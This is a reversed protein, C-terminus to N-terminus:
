NGWELFNFCLKNNFIENWKLVYEKGWSSVIINNDDTLGTIMMSHGHSHNPDSSLKINSYLEPKTSYLNYELNSNQVLGVCIEATQGIALRNAIEEKLSKIGAESLPYANGNTDINNFKFYSTESMNKSKLWENIAFVNKFTDYALGIQNSDDGVKYNFTQKSVIKDNNKNTFCYLDTLLLEDNLIRKSDEVRYLDFGFIKKFVEEKGEYKVTLENIFTAYSCIGTVDMGRLLKNIKSKSMNPFYSKVINETERYLKLNNKPNTAINNVSHQNAGYQSYKSLINANDNIMDHYLDNLYNLRTEDIANLKHDTTKLINSLKNFSDLIYFADEKKSNKINNLLIDYQTEDFIFNNFYDANKGHNDIGYIVNNKLVDNFDKLLNTQSQIMMFKNKMKTDLKYNNELLADYYQKVGLIYTEKDYSGFYQSNKDFDLFKYFAEDDTLLEEIKRVDVLQATTGLITQVEMRDGFKKNVIEIIDNNTINDNIQKINSRSDKLNSNDIADINENDIKNIEFDKQSIDNQTKTSENVNNKTKKDKLFRGLDFIEGITSGIGGIVANTAISSAGGNDDFTEYFRKLIGDKSNFAIYNGNEDYYGDKYMTQILPQAIGEAAGDISDLVVRALSNVVKVDVGTGKVPNFSNIKGGLYWQIGEWVGSATGAALGEVIGAGDAWASETGKGIGAATATMALQASTVTASTAASGAAAAGGSAAAAGGGVAAGGVGATLVTLLVVGATYGVGSGVQRIPEFLYANENIWSGIFNNEYWEDVWTTIHEKAVFGQTGNWMQLTKSKFESGTIASIGYSIIDSTVFASTSQISSLIVGFDFIAEGFQGVGESVSSVFLALTAATNEIKDLAFGVPDEQFDNVVDKAWNSVNTSITSVKEIAVKAGEKTVAATKKSLDNFVISAEDFFENINEKANDFSDTVEEGIDNITDSVNEKVNNVTNNFSAFIDEPEDTKKESPSGFISAIIAMKAGTKVIDMVKDYKEQQEENLVNKPENTTKSNTKGFMKKINEKMIDVVNVNYDKYLDSFQDENNVVENNAFKVSDKKQEIQTAIIGAISMKFDDLKQLNNNIYNKIDATELLGAREDNSLTKELEEVNSIYDTWWKDINRYGSKLKDYMLSLKINMRLIYPDTCMKFYSNNFTDFSTNKFHNLENDFNSKLDKVTSVNIALDNM